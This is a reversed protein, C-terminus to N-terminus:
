ILIKTFRMFMHDDFSLQLLTQAIQFWKCKTKSIHFPQSGVDMPDYFFCSSKLFVDIQAEDVISFDKVTHIVIFQPFNKFLHFYWVM